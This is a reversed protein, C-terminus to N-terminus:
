SLCLLCACWGYGAPALCFVANRYLERARDFRAGVLIQAGPEVGAEAAASANHPAGFFRNARQRVGQPCFM